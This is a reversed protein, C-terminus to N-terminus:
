RQATLWEDMAISCGRLEAGAARGIIEFGGAGAVGLDDTQIAMVSDLNALDFHKLVGIRGKPLPDLTEPDVVQTRVWPPVVKFRFEPPRARAQEYLVNDYFQSCMETMGYESVCYLEPLALREGFIAYLEDRQIQRRMGKIGGTEMLRSGRATRLLTKPLADLLHAFAAATGLLLIPEEAAASSELAAALEDVLLGSEDVFYRSGDGGFETRVLELMWTLSSDAALEPPPGLILMRLTVGEPLLHAAFNPLAAARYLTLDRIYHTGRREVGSSTGSTRFVAEALEALDPSGCILAADKFAATPVAPIEAWHGVSDPTVGRRECFRRYPANEALQYRFVDLALRDFADPDPAGHVGREILELVRARLANRQNM